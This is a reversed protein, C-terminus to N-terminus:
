GGEPGDPDDVPGDGSGADEAEAPAEETAEETAEEPAEEPPAEQAAPAAAQAADEGEAERGRADLRVITGGAALIKEEAAKSFKQARVTLKRGLTGNGLVKLLPTNM